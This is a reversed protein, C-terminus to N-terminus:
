QALNAAHRALEAFNLNRLTNEIENIAWTYRETLKVERDDVLQECYRDLKDTLERAQNARQKLAKIAAEHSYNM